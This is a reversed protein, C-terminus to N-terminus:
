PASINSLREKEYSLQGYNIFLPNVEYNNEMLMKMMLTSDIGGSALAVIKM